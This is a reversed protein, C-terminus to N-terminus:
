EGIEREIPKVDRAGVEARAPNRMVEKAVDLYALDKQAQRDQDRNQDEIQIEHGKLGLGKAKTQADLARTKADMIDVPTDTQANSRHVIKDQIEQVKADALAVDADAKKGDIQLKAIEKQVEPPPGQAAQQAPSLLFEDPNGFQLLRLGARDVADMNYAAQNASAMQRLAMYKIVRQTHSATNPDAQPVLDFDDLAKLFTAEDWAKAMGRKRQWFSEPHEKFLDRLMQFEEAQSSHLRKHVANEVKTSQEILALTTGVPANQTGEGVQMESTGGLRQGTTAINEVLEMLATSPEKYPLPMVADQIKQAGGTDVQAGGGPPVRFLNTNQRSGNKTILFGPFNAYMGADLLERWAATIANTTNGLIHLLGIGYFGFGPIYTYQVFTRRREPLDKTDENYDRVLSLVTQSSVDITVRYPVELGTERGRLEHEFGKLDLECYCEYIERNRDEANFTSVQVGQQSAKEREASDLDREKPTGLSVDRYVGLIQLRKVVSPTMDIRHTVRRANALDTASNNVILDDADVSELVPRNRIPCFYGKKFSAGGFGLMLLMRDTDPYYETAVATLFHNFDHELDEALQDEGQGGNNDDNRIKVPGDTPLMESRANAQFRLCAELLLPHRVKSMGEVPAGDSAGQLGPVEVKLGLMKMGTARTEVWETRSDMDEKIARLLDDAVRSLEAQNIDDALNRYWETNIERKADAIPKGDLSITISGDGHRIELIAGDQDLVPQDPGDEVIEVQVEAGDNAAEAEPSALRLNPPALGAM